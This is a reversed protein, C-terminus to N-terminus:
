RRRYRLARVVVEGAVAGLRDQDSAEDRDDARQRAGGRADGLHGDPSEREVVDDACRDPRDDDRCRSRTPPSRSTSRWTSSTSARSGRRTAVCQRSRPGRGATVDRAFAEFADIYRQLQEDTHAVSLTWQEDVGPTMFIGHNVHYLWALVSLEEDVKTAYDRYEYLPERLLRRLGELGHRGHPVSVTSLSSM